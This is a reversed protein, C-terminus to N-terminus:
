EEIKQVDKDLDLLVEEIELDEYLPYRARFEAQRRQSEEPNEDDPVGYNFRRRRRYDHDVERAAARRSMVLKPYKWFIVIATVAAVLSFFEM